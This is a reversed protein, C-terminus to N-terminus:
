LSDEADLEQFAAAVTYRASYSLFTDFVEEGSIFHQPKKNNIIVAIMQFFAYGIPMGILFLIQPYYTNWILIPGFNTIVVLLLGQM